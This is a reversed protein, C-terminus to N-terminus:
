PFLAFLNELIWCLSKEHFYSYSITMAYDLLNVFIFLFFDNCKNGCVSECSCFLFDYQSVVNQRIGVWFSM